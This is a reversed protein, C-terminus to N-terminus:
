ETNLMLEAIKDVLHNQMLDSYDTYQFTHHLYEEYLTGVLCIMGKIFAKEDIYIIEKTAAGLLEKSKVVEIPCTIIVDHRKLTQLAENLMKQRSKGLDVKEHPREIGLHKYAESILDPRVAVKAEILQMVRGWFPRYLGHYGWKAEPKDSMRIMVDACPSRALAPAVIDSVIWPYRLTRDETLDVQDLLNYTYTFLTNSKAVKIGRYYVYQSAGAHIEVEKNAWLPKSELFIKRHLDRHDMDTVTIVTQHKNLPPRNNTISGGEDITNSALERYAEELGWNKGLETTFPLVTDGLLLETFQKGRFTTARERVEMIQGGTTITIRHGLRVLVAVAYKLGTGFFGIPSDNGPKANIGMITLARLDFDTDTIFSTLM